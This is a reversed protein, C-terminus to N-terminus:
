FPSDKFTDDDEFYDENPEGDLLDLRRQLFEIKNEQDVVINELKYVRDRLNIFDAEFNM